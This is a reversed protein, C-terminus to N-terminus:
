ENEHFRKGGFGFLCRFGFHRDVLEGRHVAVAAGNADVAGPRFRRSDYVPGALVGRVTIGGAGGGHREHPPLNARPAGGALWHRQRQEHAVVEVWERNRKRLGSRGGGDHDLVHDAAGTGGM